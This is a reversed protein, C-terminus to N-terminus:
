VFGVSRLALPPLPIALPAFFNRMSSSSSSMSSSSSSASEGGVVGIGGALSLRVAAAAVVFTPSMGVDMNVFRRTTTRFESVFATFLSFLRVPVFVVVVLPPPPPVAPLPINSLSSFFTIPTFSAALRFIWRITM